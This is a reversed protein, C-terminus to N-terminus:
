YIKSSEEDNKEDKLENIMKMEKNNKKNGNTGSLDGEELDEELFKEVNMENLSRLNINNKTNFSLGCCNIQIIELYFLYGIFAIAVGAVNLINKMNSPDYILTIILRTGYYIIDSILVYIPTFLYIVMTEFFYKMYCTFSYLPYVIFIEIFFAVKNKKYQDGLNYLFVIINDFYVAGDKYDPHSIYCLKNDAMLKNCRVNSAIILTILGFFSSIIGIVFLIKFISVYEFDMLQKQLVESYCILASLILYVIYFLVIYSYSGYLNNVFDYDSPQGGPRIASAITLVIINFSFIFILSFKQHKYIRKKIKKKLILSIFVINFIWMDFMWVMCYSLISRIILQIAFTGCAILLLKSAKVNIGEHKIESYLMLENQKTQVKKNKIFFTSGEFKRFFIIGFFIYGLYEFIIKMLGHNRIVTEFGFINVNTKFTLDGLNLLATKFFFTIITCLIYIHNLSLKSFVLYKKKM